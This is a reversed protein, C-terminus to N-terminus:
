SYMMLYCMLANSIGVLAITKWHTKINTVDRLFAEYLFLVISDVYYEGYRKKLYIRFALLSFGYILIGQISCMIIVFFVSPYTSVVLPLSIHSASGLIIILSMLVGIRLYYYIDM